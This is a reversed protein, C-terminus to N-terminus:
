ARQEIAFPVGQGIWAAVKADGDVPPAEHVAVSGSTEAGEHIEGCLAELNGGIARKQDSVPDFNLTRKFGLAPDVACERQGVGRAPMGVASKDVNRGLMVAEQHTKKIPLARGDVVAM